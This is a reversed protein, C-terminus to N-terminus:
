ADACSNMRAVRASTGPQRTSSTRSGPMLPSVKWCSSTLAPMAKGTMKM